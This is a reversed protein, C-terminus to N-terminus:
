RDKRQRLTIAARKKNKKDKDKQLAKPLEEIEKNKKM